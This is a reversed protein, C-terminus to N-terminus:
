ILVGIANNCPREMQSKGSMGSESGSAFLKLSRRNSVNTCPDVASSRVSILLANLAALTITGLSRVCSMSNRSCKVTTHEVSRGSSWGNGSTQKVRNSSAFVFLFSNFSFNFFFM